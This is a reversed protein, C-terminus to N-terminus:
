IIFEDVSRYYINYQGAVPLLPYAGNNALPDVPVNIYPLLDTTLTGWNGFMNGSIAYGPFAPIPFQGNDIKYLELARRINQMNSIRAADRAKARVENLQGMIISSLLSVIAIVVLLEVLTFGRKNRFLSM